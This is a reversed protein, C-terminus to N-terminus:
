MGHLASLGFHALDISVCGSPQGNVDISRCQKPGAAYFTPIADANAYHAVAIAVLVAAGLAGVKRNTLKM